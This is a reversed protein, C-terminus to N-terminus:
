DMTPTYMFRASTSLVLYRVFAEFDRDSGKTYGATKASIDQLQSNFFM